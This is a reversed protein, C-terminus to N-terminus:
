PESAGSDVASVKTKCLLFQDTTVSHSGMATSMMTGLREPIM